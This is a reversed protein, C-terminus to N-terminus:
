EAAEPPPAAGAVYLSPDIEGPIPQITTGLEKEIRYLDHRNETTILNVAIGLHGFRGSRGIRHLYAEAMAPFDFNIVVNVAQIDIGRTFLDSCVLNRCLGKRFDHFVRNRHTQHM